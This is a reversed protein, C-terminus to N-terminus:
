LCAPLQGLDEITRVTAPFPNKVGREVRGLFASGAERAGDCDSLSDGIMLVREPVYGGAAIIRRLIEGKTQPAGEVERFCDRLGRRIVIRRLEETPTASAIHLPLRQCYKDVFERAGTVAPAAVVADEVLTSFKADLLREDAESLPEGLLVSHFYRFKEYRSVGGHASHYAAVAAMVGDGHDRYLEVFAQTKIGVSEVLVGDFDFVIADFRLGVEDV